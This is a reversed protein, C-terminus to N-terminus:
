NRHISTAAAPVAVAPAVPAASTAAAPALKNALEGALAQSVRQPRFDLYQEVSDPLKEGVWVAAGRFTPLLASQQWWPDRPFPTFGLMMVVLVVVLVGRALGFLMGLMRDSGSLGTGQVLRNMVFRLLAGLILVGIFCAGYGLVMRASPLTVSNAFLGAVKDGFVWAVWVAAIWIGLALVESILGRWLGIVVSLALVGIITYDAWNM